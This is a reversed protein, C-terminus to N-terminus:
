LPYYPLTIGYGSIECGSINLPMLMNDFILYTFSLDVGNNLEGKQITNTVVAISEFKKDDYEWKLKVMEADGLKIRDICNTLHATFFRYVGQNNKKIDKITSVKFYTLHDPSYTMYANDKLCEEKFNNIQKQDTITCIHKYDLLKLGNKFKKTKVKDLKTQWLCKEAKDNSAQAWSNTPIAVISCLAIVITSLILRKMTQQTKFNFSQQLPKYSM